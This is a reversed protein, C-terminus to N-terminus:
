CRYRRRQFLFDGFEVDVVGPLDASEDLDVPDLESVERRDQGPREPAQEVIERRGHELRQPVDNRQGRDILFQLAIELVRADAERKRKLGFIESHRREAARVQERKEREEFIFEADPVREAAAARDAVPHRPRRAIEPDLYTEALRHLGDSECPATRVADLGRLPAVARRSRDHDVRIEGCATVEENGVFQAAFPRVRIDRLHFIGAGGEHQIEADFAEILLVMVVDKKGLVVLLVDGLDLARVNDGGLGRDIDGIGARM